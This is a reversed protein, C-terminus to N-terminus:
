LQLLVAQPGLAAMGAQVANAVLLADADGGQLAAALDNAAAFRSFIINHLHDLIVNVESADRLLASAVGKWFVCYAEYCAHDQPTTIAVAGTKIVEQMAKVVAKLATGVIADLTPLVPSMDAGRVSDVEFIRVKATFLREIDLHLNSSASGVMSSRSTARRNATRLTSVNTTGKVQPPAESLAICVIVALSDLRQAVQLTASHIAVDTASGESGPRSNKSKFM